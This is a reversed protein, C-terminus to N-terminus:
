KRLPVDVGEAEALSALIVPVPPLAVSEIPPPLVVLVKIKPTFHEDDEARQLAVDNVIVRLDFPVGGPIAQDLLVQL